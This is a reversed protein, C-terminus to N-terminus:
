GEERHTQDSNERRTLQNEQEMRFNKELSIRGKYYKSNCYEFVITRTKTFISFYIIVIFAYFILNIIITIIGFRSFVIEDLYVSRGVPFILLRRRLDRSSVAATALVSEVTM